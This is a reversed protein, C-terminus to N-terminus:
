HLAAAEAAAERLPDAVAPSWGAPAAALGTKPHYNPDFSRSIPTGSADLLTCKKVPPNIWVAEPLKAVVPAKRVHREPHAAYAATLTVQRAALIRPARGFHVDAPTLLALSSHRHETNYWPVFVRCFSHADQFSGFRNPFSPRYKLTKFQSESFPNDNSVHPRSLSRTVGLAALLQAVNNSTMPAGRDSHITLQNRDVGEQLCTESILTRALSASETQALLWGVVYRSFLDIIVYLYFYMMVVPGKLKTIDWTWVRNPALALLEPRAYVPHRLQDRRERVEKASNLIRYMTRPACLYKGEDLLTAYVAPPAVDVFRESHLEDLVAKRETDSLARKPKPRPARLAKPKRRRYLSARSFKFADCAPATGVKCALVEIAAIM